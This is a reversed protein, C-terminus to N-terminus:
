PGATGAVTRVMGGRAREGSQLEGSAGASFQGRRLIPGRLAVARQPLPTHFQGYLGSLSLCLSAGDMRRSPEAATSSLLSRPDPPAQVTSTGRSPWMAGRDPDSTSAVVFFPTSGGRGAMPNAGSRSASLARLGDTLDSLRSSGGGRPGKLLASGTRASGGGLVALHHSIAAFKAVSGASYGLLDM